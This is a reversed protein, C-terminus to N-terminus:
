CEDSMVFKEQSQDIWGTFPYLFVCYGNCSVGCHAPSQRQRTMKLDFLSILFEELHECTLTQARDFDPQFVFGPTPTYTVSFPTIASVVGNGKVPTPIPTPKVAPALITAVPQTTTEIPAVTPSRIPPLSPTATATKPSFTPLFASTSSQPANSPQSIPNPIKTTPQPAVQPLIPASTSSINPTVTGSAQPAFVPTKTTVIASENLFVTQTSPILAPTTNPQLPM